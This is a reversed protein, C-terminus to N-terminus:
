HTSLFAWHANGILPDDAVVTPTSLRDSLITTRYLITNARYYVEDGSVLLIESDGQKTELDYRKGSDVNYLVLTGPYYTAGEAFLLHEVSVTEEKRSGHVTLVNKLREERGPSERHVNHNYVSYGPQLVTYESPSPAENVRFALWKGYATVLQRTGSGPLSVSALAKNRTSYVHFVSSGLGDTSYTQEQLTTLVLTFANRAMLFLDKGSASRPLDPAPVDLAIKSNFLLKGGSESLFYNWLRYTDHTTVNAAERETVTQPQEGAALPYAEYRSEIGNTSTILFRPTRTAETLIGSFLLSYGDAYKIPITLTSSPRDMSVALLQEPQNNEGRGIVVVRNEYDPLIFVDLPSSNVLNVPSQAKGSAVRFLTVDSGSSMGNLLYLTGPQQALGLNSAGFLLSLTSFILTYVGGRCAPFLEM